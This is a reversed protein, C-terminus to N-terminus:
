GFSLMYALMNQAGGAISPHVFAHTLLTAAFMLVVAGIRETWRSRSFLLWWLAILLGCFIGGMLAFPLDMEPLALPAVTAIVVFIAAIVGLPWLRLPKNTM